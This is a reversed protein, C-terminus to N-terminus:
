VREGNDLYEWTTGRGLMGEPPRVILLRRDEVGRESQRAGRKPRHVPEIAMYGERDFECTSWGDAM